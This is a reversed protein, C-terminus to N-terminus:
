KNDKRTKFWFQDIASAYLVNFASAKVIKRPRYGTTGTENENSSFVNTAVTGKFTTKPDSFDRRRIVSQGGNIPWVPSLANRSSSMLLNGVGELPGFIGNHLASLASIYAGIEDLTVVYNDIDLNAKLETLTQKIKTKNRIARNNLLTDIQRKVSAKDRLILVINDIWSNYLYLDSKKEGNESVSNDFFFNFKYLNINALNKIPDATAFNQFPFIGYQVSGANAYMQKEYWQPTQAAKSSYTGNTPNGTTLGPDIQLIWVELTRDDFLIRFREFQKQVSLFVNYTFAVAEQNLINIAADSLQTEPTIEATWRTGDYFVHEPPSDIYEQKPTIIGYPNLEANIGEEFQFIASRFANYAKKAVKLEIERDNYNFNWGAEKTDFVKVKADFGVKDGNFFIDSSGSRLQIRDITKFTLYVDREIEIPPLKETNSDYTYVLKAKLSKRDLDLDTENVQEFWGNENWKKIHVHFKIPSFISAEGGNGQIPLDKNTFAFQKFMSLLEYNKTIDLKNNQGLNAQTIIENFKSEFKEKTISDEAIIVQHKKEFPVAATKNGKPLPNELSPNSDIQKFLLLQRSTGKLWNNYESVKQIISQLSDFINTSQGTWTSADVNQGNKTSKPISNITNQYETIFSNYQEKIESTLANETSFKINAYLDEFIDELLNTAVLNQITTKVMNKYLDFANNLGNLQLAFQSLASSNQNDGLQSYSNKLAQYIQSFNTYAQELANIGQTEYYTKNTNKVNQNFQDLASAVKVYFGQHNEEESMKAKFQDKIYNTFEEIKTEVPVKLAQIAPALVRSYNIRDTYNASLVSDIANKIELIKQYQTETVNSGARADLQKPSFDVIYDSIALDADKAKDFVYTYLRNVQLASTEKSASIANNAQSYTINELDNNLEELKNIANQQFNAVIIPNPDTNQPNFTAQNEEIYRKLAKSYDLQSALQQKKAQFVNDIANRLNKIANAKDLESNPIAKLVNTAQELVAQLENFKTTVNDNDIVSSQQTKYTEAEDIAMKLQVSSNLVFQILTRNQSYDTQLNDYPQFYKNYLADASISDDGYEQDFQSLLARIPAKEENDLTNDNDINAKVQERFFILRLRNFTNTIDQYIKEITDGSNLKIKEINVFYEKAKTALDKADETAKVISADSSHIRDILQELDYVKLALNELSEYKDMVISVEKRVINLEGTEDPSDTLTQASNNKNNLTELLTKLDRKFVRYQVDHYLDLKDIIQNIRAKTEKRYNFLKTIEERKQKMENVLENATQNWNSFNLNALDSVQYTHGPTKGLSSQQNSTAIPVSDWLMKVLAVVDVNNDSVGEKRLEEIAKSIKIQEGVIGTVVKNQDQTKLQGVLKLKEQLLRLKEVSDQSNEDLDSAILFSNIFSLLESKKNNGDVGQYTYFQLESSNIHEKLLNANISLDNSIDVLEYLRKTKDLENALANSSMTLYNIGNNNIVSRLLGSYKKTADSADSAVESLLDSSLADYYGLEVINHVNAQIKNIEQNVEVLQSKSVASSATELWKSYQSQLRQNLNSSVKSKASIANDFSLKIDNNIRDVITDRLEQLSVQEQYVDFLSDKLQVLNSYDNDSVPQSEELANSLEYINNAYLNKSNENREWRQLANASDKQLRLLSNEQSVLEELHNVDAYNLNSDKLKLKLNNIFAQTWGKVKNHYESSGFAESEITERIEELHNFVLDKKFVLRLKGVQEQTGKYSIADEIGFNAWNSEEKEKRYTEKAKEFYNTFVYNPKNKRINQIELEILNIEKDVSALAENMEELIVKKQEEFDRVRLALNDKLTIIQDFSLDDNYLNPTAAEEVKTINANLDKYIKYNEQNRLVSKLLNLTDLYQKKAEAINIAAKLKEIKDNVEDITNNYNVNNNSLLTSLYDAVSKDNENNFRDFLNFLQTITQAQIEQRELLDGLQTLNTINVDSQKVAVYQNLRQLDSNYNTKAAVGQSNNQSTQQIQSNIYIVRDKQYSLEIEKGRSLLINKESNYAYENPLNLPNNLNDILEKAAKIENNANSISETTNTLSYKQDTHNKIVEELARIQVELSYVSSVVSTYSDIKNALTNIEDEDLLTKNAIDKLKNYQDWLNQSGQTNNDQYNSEIENKLKNLKEDLLAHANQRRLADAANKIKEKAAQIEESTAYPNAYLINAERIADDLADSYQKLENIFPSNKIKNNLKTAEDIEKDLEAFEPATNILNGLQNTIESIEKQADKGATGNNIQNRLEDLKKNLNQYLDIRNQQGITLAADEENSHPNAFVTDLFAKAFSSQKEAQSQEYAQISNLIYQNYLKITEVLDTTPIPNFKKTKPQSDENLQKLRTITENNNSDTVLEELKNIFAQSRIVLNSLISKLTNRLQENIQYRIGSLYAPSLDKQVYSTEVLSVLTSLKTKAAQSTFQLSNITKVQSKVLELETNYVVLAKIEESILDSQKSVNNVLEQINNSRSIAQELDNKFIVMQVQDILKKDFADNLYGLSDNFKKNAYKLSYYQSFLNKKAEILENKSNIQVDKNIEKILEQKYKSFENAFENVYNKLDGIVNKIELLSKNSDTIEQFTTITLNKLLEIDNINQIEEQAKNFQKQFSLIQDKQAKSTTPNDFLEQIKAYYEMMENVSLSVQDWQQAFADYFDNLKNNQIDLDNERMNTEIAKTLTVQAQELTKSTLGPINKDILNTQKKEANEIYPKFIENQHNVLKEIKTGLQGLFEQQLTSEQTSLDKIFSELNTNPIETLEEQIDKDRIREVQNALIKKWFYQRNDQNKFDAKDLNQVYYNMIASQASDLKVLKDSLSSDGNNWEDKAQKIIQQVEQNSKPNTSFYPSYLKFLLEGQVLNEYATKAPKTEDVHYTLLAATLGGIAPALIATSIAASKFLIKKKQNGDM